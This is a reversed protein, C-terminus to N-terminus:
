YILVFRPPICRFWLKRKLHHFEAENLKFSVTNKGEFDFTLSPMIGKLLWQNDFNTM